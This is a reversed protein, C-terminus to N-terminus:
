QSSKQPWFRWVILVVGVIILLAALGFGMVAYRETTQAASLRPRSGAPQDSLTM